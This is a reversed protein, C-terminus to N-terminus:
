ADGAATSAGGASGGQGKDRADDPGHLLRVAEERRQPLPGVRGPQQRLNGARGRRHGVYQQGDGAGGTRCGGASRRREHVDVGAGEQRYQRQDRACGGDAGARGAAAAARAYRRDPRLDQGEGDAYLLRFLEDTIWNAMRQPKGDEQGYAAVAAEFYDAVAKESTIAGADAPRLAWEQRYRQEKADPLEPLTRAEEEVWQRDVVLPPLDPEPFYRYDESSEKSRQLVTRQRNEDWGMNVQEIVGGSELVEAQREAEYAIASRVARLSNLNKVEVKTGLEGRAAQEPTRVSINPECRLAGEEMNGSNVGLYRLISRLKTLFAYAEDASAIDAETVIEMLPMGARNLDVLTHLGAHTNKGTDEELHARHIRIRKVDGDPLEIEVRGNRCLPLEYQSIQYGKPLDPYHYNKRAFVATEAIECNLALGTRITAEVAARNSVPLAGPLGLCVPCTHTNPPAGQYDASCRCFMKTKTLLQAHVEMGVVVNYEQKM